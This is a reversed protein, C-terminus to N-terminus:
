YKEKKTSGIIRQNHHIPQPYNYHSYICHAVTLRLALQEEELASLKLPMTPLIKLTLNIPQPKM